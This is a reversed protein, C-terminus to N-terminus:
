QERRCAVAVRTSHQLLLAVPCHQAVPFSSPSCPRRLSPSVSPSAVLVQVFNEHCWQVSFDADAWDQFVALLASHDGAAGRYFNRHANQAIVQVAAMGTESGSMLGAIVVSTCCHMTSVANSSSM